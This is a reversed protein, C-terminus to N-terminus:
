LLLGIILDFQDFSLQLPDRLDFWFQQAVDTPKEGAAIDARVQYSIKDGAWFGVAALVVGLIFTRPKM